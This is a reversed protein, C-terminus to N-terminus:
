ARKRMFTPLTNKLSADMRWSAFSRPGAPLHRRRKKTWSPRTGARTAPQLGGPAVTVASALKRRFRSLSTRIICRRRPVPAHGCNTQPLPITPSIVLPAVGEATRRTSPVPISRDQGLHCSACLNRLHTDAATHRLAAVDYRANLDTNEGFAFKDVAAVGSMTNMLSAPVRQAPDTHCNSAGCTQAVVSLNGPTLTMGAHALKKDLTWPNGLHCAACGITAPDHAAVFGTMKGHCSLCGERQGGILPVSTEVLKRAAPIYARSSLFDTEGALVTGPSRWRWGDGRLTVGILTLAVYFLVLTSLAYRAAVDLPATFGPLSILLVLVLGGIWVTLQPRPLWHLFEQLGVLYWPGKEVAATRWELGPVLFLSLLLIPPAIWALSRATPLLRRSHEVTVLWIILTATCAHQLYITSLDAGAGTLLRQMAAGAFPILGLLKRLVPLAQQAAADARLLFGSLMVAVIVPITLVLRLWVGFRVLRESRRLLHDM